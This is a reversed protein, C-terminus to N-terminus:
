GRARFGSDQCRRRRLLALGAAALLVLSAPEPIVGTFIQFENFGAWGDAYPSTFDVKIQSMLTAQSLVFVDAGDGADSYGFLQHWATDYYSIMGAHGRWDNAILLAKVAQSGGLDLTMSTSAGNLLLPNNADIKADFLGATSGWMSGATYNVNSGALPLLTLKDPLLWAEFITGSSDLTGLQTFNFSASTIGTQASPLSSIVYGKSTGATRSIGLDTGNLKIGYAYTGWDPYSWDTSIITQVAFPTATTWTFYSPVGTGFGRTRANNNISRDFAGAGLESGTMNTASPAMGSFPNASYGILGSPNSAITMGTATRGCLGATAVAVFLSVCLVKM